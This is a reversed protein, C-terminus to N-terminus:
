NGTLFENTYLGHFDLTTVPRGKADLISKSQLMFHPYNQWFADSQIGWPKDVDKYKASLFKQSEEVLGADPFTGKPANTLLIKAAEAPNEIAYMYGKETAQMFKTLLEKKEQLEEPSTILNPTYYDPIGYKTIPFVTVDLKERKAQIVEWGEYVWVFDIQKTQLAQMADTALVVNKFDGKGGDHKIIQSVVASEFPAGFGGYTKGDLDKPSKINEDSRTIIASTNHAIIAAISVVPNELAKDAVINETSSVGVDAKGSAVLVDSSVSSSYPLIVVHLGESKYWGKELAVYLGTHNTNPTWDLAVTFTPLSAKKITFMHI